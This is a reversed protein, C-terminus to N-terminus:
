KLAFVVNVEYRLKIRKFDIPAEPNEVEAEGVKQQYATNAIQYQNLKYQSSLQNYYGTFNEEPESITIAEGLKESVAETLYIGKDKAAKVAQIKLQRRFETIRSHSTKVIRFNQTAEDDLRDVLKDVDSSKSFKVQYSISSYLETRKKKRLWPNNYGEYSAITIVSDPLGIEKCKQLFATKIAEIDTKDQGKKQYERLDVVVYIEDPIIEMESSGTVTITKPFPNARDAAQQGIAPYTLFVLSAICLIQKM